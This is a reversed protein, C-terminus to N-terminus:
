QGQHGTWHNAIDTMRQDAGNDTNDTGIAWDVGAVNNDTLNQISSSSGIVAM